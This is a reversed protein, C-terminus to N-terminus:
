IPATTKSRRRQWVFVPIGLVLMMLGYLVPEAGCGYLTFVSFIFAIVEIITLRPVPGGGTAYAAVLGTALACFAYPIVAAMTSLGVVLNYFASFGSSGVAQILVLMTALIASITIGIAPVGNPSLQGFPHPFLDDRSAAMPVQGMLLTWGNLAGIASLMVAMSIAMAGWKGWLVEAADSFPAVSHV